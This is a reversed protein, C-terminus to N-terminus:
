FVIKNLDNYKKKEDYNKFNPKTIYPNDPLFLDNAPYFALPIDFRGRGFRNKRCVLEVKRPDKGMEEALKERKESLKGKAEGSFLESSLCQFQLGMVVDATYEIGGSEKLSELAFPVMYNDRSVTAIALVPVLLERTMQKLTTMSYDVKDKVTGRSLAKLQDKEGETMNKRVLPAKLAQLYDIVVLPRRGTREIYGRVYDRISLADCVFNAEVINMRNGIQDSYFEIAKNVATRNRESDKMSNTRIALQNVYCGMLSTYRGLSKSVLELRSQELSFFIVDNGHAAVQDAIQLALSTKGLGSVAGIIYLGSYFGGNLAEKADLKNFYTPIKNQFIEIEKFMETGLYTLTNDPRTAHDAAARAAKEFAERDYVLTENPDKRSCDFTVNSINRKDLEAKLSEKATQGDADNDMAIILTADTRQGDLIALLKNANDTSNLSIAPYGLELFSLADFPGETVFVFRSEYLAGVNFIGQEGGTSNMVRYDQELDTRRAIYHTNTVPIIIRPTTYGKGTPDAAPDYGLNYRQATAASIGRGTIYGMADADTLRAMCEDYYGSFDVSVARNEDKPQEADRKDFYDNFADLAANFDGQENKMIELGMEDALDALAKNFDCHENYMYLDIADGSKHCSFCHFKSKNAPVIGFAGTHHPGTGSGCFPCNYLSRGSRELFQKMDVNQRIATIADARSVKRGIQPLIQTQAPHETTKQETRDAARWNYKTFLQKMAQEPDAVDPLDVPLENGTFTLYRVSHGGYMEVGTQNPHNKPMAPIDEPISGYMFARVGEGSPSIEWYAANGIAEVFERGIDDLQGGKYHHDLDLGVIGKGPLMEYGVGVYNLRKCNATATEYDAYLAPDAKFYDGNPLFPTKSEKGTTGPKGHLIWQPQAKMDNVIQNNM